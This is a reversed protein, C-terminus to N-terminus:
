GTTSVNFGEASVEIWDVSPKFGLSSYFDRIRRNTPDSYLILANANELRVENEVIRIMESGFKRGRYIPDVYILSLRCSRGFDPDTYEGSLAIMGVPRDTEFVLLRGRRMWESVELTTANADARTDLSFTRAWRNLLPRDLEGARRTTMPTRLQDHDSAVTTLRKGWSAQRELIKEDGSDSLFDFQRLENEDGMITNVKLRARLFDILESSRAANLEGIESTAAPPVLALRHEPLAAGLLITEGGSTVTFWLM